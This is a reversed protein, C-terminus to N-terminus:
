PPARMTSHATSITSSPSAPPATLPTSIARRRRCGKMTVSAVQDIQPPTASHTSGVSPPVIGPDNTEHTSAFRSPIVEGTSMRTASTRKQTQNLRVLSPTAIRAVPDLSFEAKRDPTGM